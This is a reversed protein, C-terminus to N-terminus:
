CINVTSNPVRSTCDYNTRDLVLLGNEPNREMEGLFCNQKFIWCLDVQVKVSSSWLKSSFFKIKTEFDYQGDKIQKLDETKLFFLEKSKIGYRVRICIRDFPWIPSFISGTMTVQQGISMVWKFSSGSVPTKIRGSIGSTSSSTIVSLEIEDKILKEIFALLLSERNINKCERIITTTFSDTKLQEEKSIKEIRLISDQIHNPRVREENSFDQNSGDRSQLALISSLSRLKFQEIKLIEESSLGSNLNLLKDALNICEVLRFKSSTFSANETILHSQLQLFDFHLQVCHREHQNLEMAQLKRLSALVSKIGSPSSKIDKVRNLLYEITPRSDAVHANESGRSSLSSGVEMFTLQPVLKPYVDRLYSYHRSVFPPFFQGVSPCKHAANLIMIMKAAYAADSIDIERTDFFPHLDLLKPTLAAVFNPHNKGLDRFAKYISYQDNPYKELSKLLELITVDLCQRSLLACEALLRHTASRIDQRADPLCSTLVNELQDELLVPVLPALRCCCNIAQLRVEEIEDNLMDVLYDISMKAFQGSTEKIALECLSSISAVRVSRFEDELGHIFAGCAGRSIVQNDDDVEGRVAKDKEFKRGSAFEHNEGKARENFSKVNKLNSMLNKELTQLLFGVSVNTFTGLLKAAQTRVTCHSDNIAQCIWGFGDDIIRIMDQNTLGRAHVKSEPEFQALQCILRLNLHRVKESNDEMLEISKKYVTQLDTLETPKRGILAKIAEYRIRGDSDSMSQIVHDLSEKDSGYKGLFQVGHRRLAPSSKAIAKLALQKFDGLETLVFSDFSMRALTWLRSEIKPPPDQNLILRIRDLIKKSVLPNSFQSQFMFQIVELMEIEDASSDNLRTQLADFAQDIDEKQVNLKVKKADGQLHVQSGISGDLPRKVSTM